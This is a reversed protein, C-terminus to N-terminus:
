SVYFSVSDIASSRSQLSSAKSQMGSRWNNYVVQDLRIDVNDQVTRKYERIKTIDTKVVDLIEQIFHEIYKIENITEQLQLVLSVCDAVKGTLTSIEIYLDLLTQTSYTIYENTTRLQTIVANLERALRDVTAQAQVARQLHDPVETDKLLNFSALIAQLQESTKQVIVQKILIDAELDRTASKVGQNTAVSVHGDETNVLIEGVKPAHATKETLPKVALRYNMPM